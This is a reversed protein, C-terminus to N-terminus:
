KKLKNEVEEINGDGMTWQKLSNQKAQIVIYVMDDNSLNIMSRKGEPSVRIVSGESIPFVKDDVQFRGHGKLIIYVEENEKHSHFFPLETNAPLSTISIECGTVDLLDKLFIKGKMDGNVFDKVSNLGGIDIAKFNKNEDINKITM